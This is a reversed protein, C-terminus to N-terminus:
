FLDLLFSNNILDVNNKFYTNSQKIYKSPIKYDLIRKNYDVKGFDSKFCYFRNNDNYSLSSLLSDFVIMGNYKSNKIESEVFEKMVEGINYVTNLTVFCLSKNKFLIKYRSM